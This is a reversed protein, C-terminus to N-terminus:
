RGACGQSAIYENAMNQMSGRIRAKRERYTLSGHMRSVKNEM